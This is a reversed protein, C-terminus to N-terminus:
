PFIVARSSADMVSMGNTGNRARTLRYVPSFADHTMECLGSSANRLECTACARSTTFRSFADHRTMRHRTHTMSTM